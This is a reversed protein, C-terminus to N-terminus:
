RILGAFRLVQIQTRLEPDEIVVEPGDGRQALRRVMELVKESKLMEQIDVDAIAHEVRRADAGEIPQKELLRGIEEHGSIAAQNGPDHVLAMEFCAIAKHYEFLKTGHVTGKLAYVKSLDVTGDANEILFDCDRLSLIPRDNLLQLRARLFHLNLDNPKFHLATEIRKVAEGYKHAARQRHAEITLHNLLTPDPKPPSLMFNLMAQVEEDMELSLSKEFSKKANEYDRLGHYISGCLTYVKPQIQTRNSSDVLDLSLKAFALATQYKGIEYLASAKWYYLMSDLPEAAIADTFSAIAKEFRNEEFDLCANRRVESRQRANSDLTAHKSKAHQLDQRLARNNPELALAAEYASIAEEYLALGELSQALRWHGKM